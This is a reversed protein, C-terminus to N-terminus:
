STSNSVCKLNRMMVAPLSACCVAAFFSICILILFMLDAAPLDADGSTQSVQSCQSGFIYQFFVSRRFYASSNLIIKFLFIQVQINFNIALM